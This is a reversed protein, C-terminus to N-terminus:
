RDGDGPVRVVHELKRLIGLPTLTRHAVLREATQELAQELRQAEEDGINPDAANYAEEARLCAEAMAEVPDAEPSAPRSLGIIHEKAEGIAKCRNDIDGLLYHLQDLYSLLYKLRWAEKAPDENASIAEAGADELIGFVIDFATRTPFLERDISDAERWIQRLIQEKCGALEHSRPATRRSAIISHIDTAM